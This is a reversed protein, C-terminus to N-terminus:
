RKIEVGAYEVDKIAKPKKILIVVKLVNFKKLILDASKQAITEVLNFEKNEILNKLYQHVKFYDVTDCIDDTKVSKKTNCFMEISILIEQKASREEKTIGVNCLFKANKIIIKDCMVCLVYCM